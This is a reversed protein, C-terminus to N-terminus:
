LFFITQFALSFKKMIAVVRKKSFYAFLVATIFALDYQKYPIISVPIASHTKLCSACRVRSISILYEYRKNDAYSIVYRHYSGHPKLNPSKCSPCVHNYIKFEKESFM